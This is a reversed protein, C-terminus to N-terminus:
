PNAGNLPQDAGNLKDKLRERVADTGKVSQAALAGKVLKAPLSGEMLDKPNSLTVAADTVAAAQGGTELNGTAM